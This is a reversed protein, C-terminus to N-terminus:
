TLYLQDQDYIAFSQRDSTEGQSFTVNLNSIVKDCVHKITLLNNLNDTMEKSFEISALNNAYLSNKILLGSLKFYDLYSKSDAILSIQKKVKEIDWCNEIEFKLIRQIGSLKLTLSEGMNLLLKFLKGIESDSTEANKNRLTIM